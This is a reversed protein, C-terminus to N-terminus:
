KRQLSNDFSVFHSILLNCRLMRHLLLGFEAAATYAVLMKVGVCYGLGPLRTQFM